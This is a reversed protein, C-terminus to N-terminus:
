LVYWSSPTYLIDAYIEMAIQETYRQAYKHDHVHAM